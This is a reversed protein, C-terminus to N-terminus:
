QPRRDQLLRRVEEFKTDLSPHNDLFEQQVQQAAELAMTRRRRLIKADQERGESLAAEIRSRLVNDDPRPVYQGAMAMLAREKGVGNARMVQFATQPDLGFNMAADVDRAMHEVIESKATVMKRYAREVEEATVTGRRTLTDTFIRSANRYQEEFDYTEWKIREAMDITKIRQGAFLSLIEQKPDADQYLGKETMANYLGRLDRTTTPEFAKLVHGVRRAWFEEPNAQQLAPNAIPGGTETSRNLIAERVKRSLIEESIFPNLLRQLANFGARWPDMEDGTMAAIAAEGYAKYPNLYGLDTYSATGEKAPLHFLNSYRSWSPLLRRLYKDDEDDYGTLAKSVEYLATMAGQAMIMGVARQMGIHRRQPDALDEKIYRASQYTTRFVESFFSVFPANTPLRRLKKLFQPVQSYTPYTNTVIEAAKEEVRQEPWEPKADQYREKEIQFAYVKWIEDGLQYLKTLTQGTAGVIKDAIEGMGTQPDDMDWDLDQFLDELEGARVADGVIGLELMRQYEQREGEGEFTQRMSKWAMDWAQQKPSTTSLGAVTGVAAGPVAGVPGGIAAGIAGGAAAGASVRPSFLHGQQLAFLINGYYNRFQTKLSGVTKATKVAVSLKMIAEQWAPMQEQADFQEFARAIEPTTYLGNLPQMTRSGEAAIQEEYSVGDIVKPESFLFRGLGKKKVENLLAQNAVATAVKVMSQKVNVAPDEYEGLLARLAEPIDSRREFIASGVSGLTRGGAFDARSEQNLLELLRAQIQEDSMHPHNQRFWGVAENWATAPVGEPVAEPDMTIGEGAGLERAAQRLAAGYSDENHIRYSRTLYTGMNQEVVAKLQGRFLGTQIGAHSMADVMDRLEATASQLPEPLDDIYTKEKRTAEPTRPISSFWFEGMPVASEIQPDREFLAEQQVDQERRGNSLAENIREKQETTLAEGEFTNQLAAEFDTLAWNMRQLWAKVQGRRGEAAEYVDEPLDGRTAFQRRLKAKFLTWYDGLTQPREPRQLPVDAENEAFPGGEEGFDRTIFRAEDMEAQRQRQEERSGYERIKLGADELKQIREPDMGEPVIATRFDSIALSATVESAMAESALAEADITGSPATLSVRGSESATAEAGEAIVESPAPIHGDMKDVIWDIADPHMNHIAIVEGGAGPQQLHLKGNNVTQFRHGMQSTSLSQFRVGQSAEQFTRQREELNGDTYERVEGVAEALMEKVEEDTTDPVVAAVFEDLAVARQPKSEFYQTPSEQLTRGFQVFEKVATAPVDEFGYRQLSARAQEASLRRQMMEGLAQTADDRASLRNGLDSRTARGREYHPLIQERVAEWDGELEEKVQDFQEKSRLRGRAQQMEELTGFRKAGAARANALTTLMADEAAQVSRDTMVEILNDLTPPLRRGQEAPLYPDGFMSDAKRTAWPHLAGRVTDAETEEEIMQNLQDDLIMRDVTEPREQMERWKRFLQDITGFALTGDDAQYRGAVADIYSDDVEGIEARSSRRAAERLASQLDQAAEGQPNEVAVRKPWDQGVGYTDLWEQMPESELLTQTSGFRKKTPISAPQRDHVEDLYWLKAATLRSLRSVARGRDDHERIKYDLSSVKSTEGTQEAYDMLAQLVPAVQGPQHDYEAEPATPSWIDSDYTPVGNEPDVLSPTGVLSIKGFRAFGHDYRATAVSPVPIHASLQQVAFRVDEESLNHVAVMNQEPEADPDAFLRLQDPDESYTSFRTIVDDPDYAVDINEYFGEAQRKPISWHRREQAIRAEIEGATRQYLDHARDRVRREFADSDPDTTRLRDVAAENTPDIGAAELLRRARRVKRDLVGLSHEAIRVRAMVDTVREMGAEELVQLQDQRPATSPDEFREQLLTIAERADGFLELNYAANQATSLQKRARPINEQINGGVAWGEHEQVWHQLEHIFTKMAASLAEELSGMQEGMAGETEAKVGDKVMEILKSGIILEGGDYDLMGMHPFGVMRVSLQDTIEPYEEFLTDHRFVQDIPLSGGDAAGGHQLTEEIRNVRSMAAYKRRLAEEVEEPDDTMMEDLAAQERKRVAEALARLPSESHFHAGSDDVEFRPAGDYPGDFVGSVGPAEDEDFREASSGLVMWRTPREPDMLRDFRGGQVADGRQAARLHDKAANLLIGFEAKTLRLNLARAVGTKMRQYLTEMTTNDVAMGEAIGALYEDMLLRRSEGTLGGDDAREVLDANADILRTGGVTRANMVTEIGVADILLDMTDEFNEGLLARLGQHAAAEHMLTMRAMTEHSWGTAKAMAGIQDAILYVQGEADAPAGGLFMAPRMQM